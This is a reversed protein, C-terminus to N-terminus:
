VFAATNSYKYAKFPHCVFYMDLVFRNLSSKHSAISLSTLNLKKDFLAGAGDKVDTTAYLSFAFLLVQILCLISEPYWVLIGVPLM